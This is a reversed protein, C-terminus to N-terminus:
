EDNIIKFILHDNKHSRFNFPFFPEHITEIIDMIDDLIDYGEDINKLEIDFFFDEYNWSVYVNDEGLYKDLTDKVMYFEPTGTEDGYYETKGKPNITMPMVKICNMKNNTNNIYYLLFYFLDIKNKM